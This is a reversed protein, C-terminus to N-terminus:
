FRFGIGASFQLNHTTSAPVIFPVLEFNAPDFIDNPNPLPEPRFRPFDRQRQRYRIITDGIDFRTVLRRSPYFEAVIGFDAAPEIRSTLTPLRTDANFKGSTESIYAFGPRAKAFLGFREFRKGAKVGFLATTMRGGSYYNRNRVERPFLDVQTELAVYKNLNVTFRGGFGAETRPADTNFDYLTLSSFQAGIEYRPVDESQAYTPRNITIIFVIVIAFALSFRKINM